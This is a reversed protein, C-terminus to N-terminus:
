VDQQISRYENIEGRAEERCVAGNKVLPATNRRYNDVINPQLWLLNEYRLKLIWSIGVYAFAVYLIDEPANRCIGYVDM